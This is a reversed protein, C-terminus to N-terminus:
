FFESVHILAFKAGTARVDQLSYADTWNMKGADNAIGTGSNNVYGSLQLNALTAGMTGGYPGSPYPGVMMAGGMGAMGATNMTGGMAMMMGGANMAGGSATMMGGAATAGGNTSGGASMTIMGGNGVVGGGVGVFGGMGPIGAGGVLGGMGMGAAGGSTMTVAGGNASLGGSGPQTTDPGKSGGGNDSSCAMSVCAALLCLSHVILKLM